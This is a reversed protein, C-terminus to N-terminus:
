AKDWRKSISRSLKVVNNNKRDRTSRTNNDEYKKLKREAIELQIQTLELEETLEQIILRFRLHWNKGVDRDYTPPKTM